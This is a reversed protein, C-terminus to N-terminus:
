HVDLILWGADTPAGLLPLAQIRVDYPGARLASSSGLPKEMLAARPWCGIAWIPLAAAPM